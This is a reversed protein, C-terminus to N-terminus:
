AYRLLLLVNAIAVSLLTAPVAIRLYEGWRVHTGGKEAVALGVVNASGGVPTANGGFDAGLALAWGLPQVALGQQFAIDRVVPVMAAAFPVNDLVTSLLASPWLVLTLLLARNGGSASGIATALDHLVGTKELGGVIM